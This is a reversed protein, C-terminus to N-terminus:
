GSLLPNGYITEVTSDIDVAIRSFNTGCKEWVQARLRSMIRLISDAQNIGMSDLYRWYTSADPLQRVRIIGCLMADLRVYIFHWIRNFGIFMLMLIGLVM